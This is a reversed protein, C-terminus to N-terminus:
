AFLGEQLYKGCQVAMGTFFSAQVALVGVSAAFLITAVSFFAHEASGQLYPLLEHVKSWWFASEVGGVGFFLGQAWPPMDRYRPLRPRMTWRNRLAKGRLSLRGGCVAASRLKRRYFHKVGRRLLKSLNNM